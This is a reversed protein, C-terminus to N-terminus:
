FDAVEDAYSYYSDGAVIIHDRVKIQCIDGMRKIDMTMKNDCKSPKCIGSPHNHALIINTANNLIAEKMIVRGDVIASDLGGNFMKQAKIIHMGTNLYIVWVEECEKDKLNPYIYRYSDDSCSIKDIEKPESANYEVICDYLASLKKDREMYPLRNNCELLARLDGTKKIGLSELKTNM